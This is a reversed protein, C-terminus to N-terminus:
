LFWQKSSWYLDVSCSAHVVCVAALRDRRHAVDPRVARDGLAACRRGGVGSRGRRPLLGLVVRPRDPEVREAELRRQM